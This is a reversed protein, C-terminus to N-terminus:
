VAGKWNKRADYGHESMWSETFTALDNDITEPMVINLRVLHDGSGKKTKIGRGRLRLTQGSKAGKPVTVNVRGAITPVEVKGGLIAEHLGIPVEIIIDDGDREFLEHPRVEITVLADGPPGGNLGAQGKGKLRLTQGDRIGSPISVDLVVGDPMTVRTRTGDAADLFSIALHYRLDPGPFQM